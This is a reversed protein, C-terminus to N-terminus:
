KASRGPGCGGLETMATFIAERESKKRVNVPTSHVSLRPQTTTSACRAVPSSNRCVKLAPVGSATSLARCSTRAWSSRSSHASPRRSTSSSAPSRHGGELDHQHHVGRHEGGGRQAHHVPHDHAGGDQIPRERAVRQDGQHHHAHRQVGSRFLTTYPALTSPPPRLLM